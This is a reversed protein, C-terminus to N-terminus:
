NHQFLSIYERASTQSVCERKKIKTNTPHSQKLWFFNCNPLFLWVLLVCMVLYTAGSLCLLMFLVSPVNYFECNMHSYLNYPVSCFFVQAVIYCQLLFFFYWHFLMSSYSRGPQHYHVRTSSPTSQNIITYEPQHHHVRTSSPKSWVVNHSLTQWHCLFRFILPIVHLQIISMRKGNHPSEKVLYEKTVHFICAIEVDSSTPTSWKVTVRRTGSRSCSSSIRGTIPPTQATRDKTKQTINQLYNNTRKRKVVINDTM